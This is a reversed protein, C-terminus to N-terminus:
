YTKMEVCVIVTGDDLVRFEFVTLEFVYTVYSLLYPGYLFSYHQLCHM